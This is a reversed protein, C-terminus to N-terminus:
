EEQKEEQLAIFNNVSMKYETICDRYMPFIIKREGALYQNEFGYEKRFGNVDFAIHEKTEDGMYTELVSKSEPLIYGKEICNKLFELIAGAADLASKKFVTKITENEAKITEKELETTCFPCSDGNMQDIGKTRWAAWSTVKDATSSYFPKYRDLVSYKEFGAGGGKLVEGIGGRKSIGNSSYKVTSTYTALTDALTRISDGQFVSNQLESLLENIQRTLEDCEQSRLLVSYSDAFIGEPRFLYQRIYEDNFVKVTHFPIDGVSPAYDDETDTASFPTLGSLDKGEM